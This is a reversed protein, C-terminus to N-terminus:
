PVAPLAVNVYSSRQMVVHVLQEAANYGDKTVRLRKTGPSLHRITIPTVGWGIGDVTVRAGSPQTTIVLATVSPASVPMPASAPVVAPELTEAADAQGTSPAPQGVTEGIAARVAAERREARAPSAATRRIGSSEAPSQWLSRVVGVSVAACVVLLVIREDRWSRRNLTKTEAIPVVPVAPAAEREFEALVTSEDLGVARAYMRIRARQYFGREGQPLDDRELAELVHRPIKTESTLQELTLGREKRANRLLACLAITDPAPGPAPHPSPNAAPMHKGRAIAM